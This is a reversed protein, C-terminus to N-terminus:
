RSIDTMAAGAHLRTLVRVGIPVANQDVSVIASSSCLLANSLDATAGLVGATDTPTVNPQAHRREHGQFRLRNYEAWGILLVAAILAAKIPVLFLAIDIVDPTEVLEQYGLHTSIWWLALTAIPLWLYMYLTWAVLTLVRHLSRKANSQLHPRHIVLQPFEPLPFASQPLAPQLAEPPSIPPRALVAPTSM